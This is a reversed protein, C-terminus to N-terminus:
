TYVTAYLTASIHEVYVVLVIKFVSSRYGDRFYLYETM